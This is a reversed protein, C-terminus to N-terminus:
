WQATLREFRTVNAPLPATFGGAGIALILKSSV